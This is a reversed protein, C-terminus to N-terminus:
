QMYGGFDFQGIYKFRSVIKGDVEVGSLFVNLPRLWIKKDIDQYMIHTEEIDAYLRGSETDMLVEIERGTEEHTSLYKMIPKVDNRLSHVLGIEAYIGGKYHQYINMIQYGERGRKGLCRLWTDSVMHCFRDITNTISTRIIAYIM